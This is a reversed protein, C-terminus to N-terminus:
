CRLDHVGAFVCEVRRGRQSPMRRSSGRSDGASGSRAKFPPFRERTRNRVGGSSFKLGEYAPEDSRTQTVLCGCRVASGSRTPEALRSEFGIRPDASAQAAGGRRAREVVVRRVSHPSVAVEVRPREGHVVELRDRSADVLRRRRLLRQLAPVEDDAREDGFARTRGVPPASGRGGNSGAIPPSSRNRRRCTRSACPPRPRSRSAGGKPCVVPWM